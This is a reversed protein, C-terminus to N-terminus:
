LVNIIYFFDFVDFVNEIENFWKVMFSDFLLYLDIKFFKVYRLVDFGMM